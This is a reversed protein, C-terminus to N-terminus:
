TGGRRTKKPTRKGLWFQARAKFAKKKNHGSMGMGEAIKSKQPQLTL